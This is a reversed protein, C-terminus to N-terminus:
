LLPHYCCIAIMLLFSSVNKENTLHKFDHYQGNRYLKTVIKNRGFLYLLKSNEICKLNCLKKRLYVTIIYFNLM